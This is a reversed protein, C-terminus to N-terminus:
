RHLASNFALFPWDIQGTIRVEVYIVPNKLTGCIQLMHCVAKGGRRFIQNSRSPKFGRDQTGSALMSVLLGGFSSYHATAMGKHHTYYPLQESSSESTM